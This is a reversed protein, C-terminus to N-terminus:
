FSFTLPSEKWLWVFYCSRFSTPSDFEQLWGHHKGSLSHNYAWLVAGKALSVTLLVSYQIKCPCAKKSPQHPVLKNVSYEALGAALLPKRRFILCVHFSSGRWLKDSREESSLRAVPLKVGVPWQMKLRCKRVVMFQPIGIRCGQLQQLFILTFLFLVLSSFCIGRGLCHTSPKFLVLLDWNKPAPSFFFRLSRNTSCHREGWRQIDVTMLATAAANPSPVIPRSASWTVRPWRRCMFWMGKSSKKFQIWISGSSMLQSGAADVGTILLGGGYWDHSRQVEEDKNVLVTNMKDATFWTQSKMVLDTPPSHTTGSGSSWVQCFVFVSCCIFWTLCLGRGCHLRPFKPVFAFTM